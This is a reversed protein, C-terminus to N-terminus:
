RIEKLMERLRARGRAYQSRVSSPAIGLMPAIEDFTYDEILHLTLVLRYGEPLQELGKKVAEVGSTLAAESDWGDPEGPDPISEDVPMWNKRRRRLMDISTNVAIRRLWAEIAADGDQPFRRFAKIYTEHMADEAQMEDRLIRYCSNYVGHATRNYLETQARPDNRRCGDAIQKMGKYRAQM